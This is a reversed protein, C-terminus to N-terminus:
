QDASDVASILAALPSNWYIAVENTSFSDPHDIYCQAPPTKENFHDRAVPDELASDAGGAMAGPLTAHAAISPRHHFHQPSHHGHGSVFCIDLSNRGLIYHLHDAASNRYNDNDLLQDAMALVLGNNALDANSGWSYTNYLSVFYGDHITANLLTEAYEALHAQLLSHFYPDSQKLDSYRLILYTGYTGMSKWSIGHLDEAHRDFLMRANDAYKQENTAAYLACSATYREDLDSKDSYQGASFDDPNRYPTFVAGQLYDWSKKAAQLCVSAFDPDVEDYILSALATVTVFDATATTMEQMILLPQHDQDPMIFGPFQQTIVKDYVGGWDNQMKLLWNIEYRVEDLIDPIGNGSETIRQDDTFLEPEFSYALMLDLAAKAATVVYRGYDGADHWGGSVDLMEEHGYVKAIEMHCQGHALDGALEPPLATGCRQYFFMRVVDNLLDDYISDGITFSHSYGNLQSEIRYKGPTTLESFDATYNTEKTAENRIKRVVPVRLVVQSSEEDVIQIFDGQEFPLVVRKQGHTLYGAHDIHISPDSLRKGSESYTLNSVVVEHYSETSDQHHGALFSLRGNWSTPQKMRFKLDYHVPQDEAQLTKQFLIKGTDNDLIVVDVPRSISASLDFSIQYTTGKVLPLGEHFAQVSDIASGPSTIQMRITDFTNELIADGDTNYSVWFTEFEPLVVPDQMIVAVPEATPILTEQPEIPLPDPIVSEPEIQPQVSCGCLISFAILSVLIKNM